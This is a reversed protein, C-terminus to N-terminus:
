VNKVGEITLGYKSALKILTEMHQDIRDSKGVEDLYYMRNRLLWFHSEDLEEFKTNLGFFKIVDSWNRFKLVEDGRKIQYM